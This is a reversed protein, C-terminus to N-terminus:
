LRTAVNQSSSREVAIPQLTSPRSLMQLTIFVAPILFVISGFVWMFAGAAVQDNLPSLGLPNTETVYSPYIPRGAFCLFASLGTNVIDAALLYPLLM